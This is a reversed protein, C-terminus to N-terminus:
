RRRGPGRTLGLAVLAFAGAEASLSTAAGGGAARAGAGVGDVGGQVLPTLAFVVEVIGGIVAPNAVMSLAVAPAAFGIGALVVLPLRIRSWM